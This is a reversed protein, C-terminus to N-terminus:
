LGDQIHNLVHCGYGKDRLCSWLLKAVVEPVDSSNRLITTECSIEPIHFCYGIGLKLM